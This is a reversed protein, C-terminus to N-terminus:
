IEVYITYELTRSKADGLRRVRFNLVLKKGQLDGITIPSTNGQGISSNFNFLQLELKNGNSSMAEIRSQKSDDDFFTFSLILKQEGVNLAIEVAHDEYSIISGSALVNHEGAKITHQM